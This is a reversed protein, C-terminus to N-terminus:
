EEIEQWEGTKIAHKKQKWTKIQTRTHKKQFKQNKKISLDRPNNKEIYMKSRSTNM